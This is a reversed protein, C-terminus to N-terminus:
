EKAGFVMLRFLKEIFLLFLLMFVGALISNQWFGFVAAITGMYFCGRIVARVAEQMITVAGGKSRTREAQAV